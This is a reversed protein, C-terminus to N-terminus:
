NWPNYRMNNYIELFLETVAQFAETTDQFPLLFTRCDTKYALLHVVVGRALAITV